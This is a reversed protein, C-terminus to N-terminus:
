AHGGRAVRALGEARVEELTAAPSLMQPDLMAEILSLGRHALAEDLAADFEDNTAVQVGEGGFSRAMMAFDPNALGTGHVREPYHREQHMRITGYMGNNALIVTLNADYQRATALEQGSMLFCGDGSFCVVQREPHALAAAVAAPVGYGMSGSTPALQTRYDRYEFYRSVWAAYNGAGNCIIANDDLRARTRHVIHEMRLVDGGSGNGASAPPILSARRAEACEEFWTRRGEAGTAEPDLSGGVALEVFSSSTANIALDPRYVSGLEEAGPHVHVFRVAPNPIDVLTYGGTTIEGLRAGLSILLDCGRLREALRPHLGIGAHGCYAPHRNDLYDQCRFSAFVPVQHKKAFDGLNRAAAASWGGGGVILAPRESGALMKGFEAVDRIAAHPHGPNAPRSDPVDDGRASLMDEPVALVVPGPRGSVAVHFARSLYEPIRATDDIQAVWKALGGFVRRYDLEQFAERDFMERGVQGVILILPTSDQAAVHVGCAANTAGPGRTVMCVGPRGTLKAHAEAMMAAGGEQRCVVTDIQPLDHLGDIVALFSEGPVLFVRDCGQIALQDALIRGGHRSNNM